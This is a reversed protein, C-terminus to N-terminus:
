FGNSTRPERPSAGDSVAVIFRFLLHKFDLVEVDFHIAAFDEFADVEGDIEALHVGDHARVARSFRREGIHEGALLLVGDGLALDEIVAAVKQLHLGVLAGGGSDEEGELIGDFDGADARHREQPRREIRLALLAALRLEGRRIEHAEDALGGGLQM